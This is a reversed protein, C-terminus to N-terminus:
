RAGLSERHAALIEGTEVSIARTNVNTDYVTGVILVRAGIFKGVKVATAPDVLDSMQFDLEELVKELYLRDVVKELGQAKLDSALYDGLERALDATAATKNLMAVAVVGAGKLQGGYAQALKRSAADPTQGDRGPTSCSLSLGVTLLAVAYTCSRLSM